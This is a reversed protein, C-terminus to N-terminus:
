LSKSVREVFKLFVFINDKFKYERINLNANYKKFWIFFSNFHYNTKLTVTINQHSRRHFDDFM